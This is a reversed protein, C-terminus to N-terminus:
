APGPARSIRGFPPPRLGRNKPLTERVAPASQKSGLFVSKSFWARSPTPYTGLQRNWYLSLIDSALDGSPLEKTVDISRGERLVKGVGSHPGVVHHPSVVNAPSASQHQGDPRNSRVNENRHNTPTPVFKYRRFQMNQDADNIATGVSAQTKHQQPRSVCLPAKNTATANATTAKTTHRNHQKRAKGQAALHEDQHQGTNPDAASHM